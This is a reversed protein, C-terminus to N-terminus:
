DVRAQEHSELHFPDNTIELCVERLHAAVEENSKDWIPDDPSIVRVALEIRAFPWPVLHRDWTKLRRANTTNPIALMVPVKAKRAIAVAGPQFSYLPGSPGDPSVGIDNGSRLERLMERAAQVSRRTTSGRIARLRFQRFFAVEWAAAKSPSILCAIKSPDFCRRFLEPMPLSRNHWVVIMRPSTTASLFQGSIDDVRVRWTRFYLQLSWAAPYFVIKQHWKLEHVEPRKTNFPDRADKGTESM